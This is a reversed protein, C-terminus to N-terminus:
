PVAIRLTRGQSHAFHIGQSLGSLAVSAIGIRETRGLPDIIEIKEGTGALVRDGAVRFTDASLRRSVVGTTASGSGSLRVATVSLAPLSLAFSSGSFTVAVKKLANDAHSVFTEGSIGSLRLASDCQTPAFGALKVAADHALTADRNVLLVTMSDGAGNISSYASVLSDLDSISRVRTSRAYRSFLHLTEWMGSYWTWPTFVEVGSDAFTGLQSAYWVSAASASTDYLSGTETLSFTVGNGTHLYKDLWAQIRGFVHESTISTSWGGNVAKVGNAGPYNWATDWFIRHLQMQQATSTISSGPYFHLDYVDLLSESTSDKHEGLRKLFYEPFCYAKGGYAVSGTSWNYWQWENASVPGLLRIGPAIAKVARAVAIFRQVYAEPTLVTKLLGNTTDVDDHTSNWCDPENDMNWYRFRSSDLGIGGGAFWHSLIGATSDAPWAELYKSADGVKTQSSGDSSVTGGGALNFSASPYSGHAQHWAWDGWNYATTSAAYGLLQFAFLGQTGPLSDQLIKASYDWNHAYVNNYWDPHSSLKQRWNYKTSNNGGNERLMRLGAQRYFELTDSGKPKASDDSLNNNRGYIWPSISRRGSDAQVTITVGGQAFVASALMALM